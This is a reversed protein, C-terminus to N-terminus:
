DLAVLVISNRSYGLMVACDIIDNELLQRTDGTAYITGKDTEVFTWYRHPPENDRGAGYPLITRERGLLGLGSEEVMTKHLQSSHEAPMATTHTSQLRCAFHVPSLLCALLRLSPSM